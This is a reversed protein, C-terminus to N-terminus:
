VVVAEINLHVDCALGSRRPCDASPSGPCPPCTRVFSATLPRHPLKLRGRKPRFCRHSTKRGNPGERGSGHSRSLVSAVLDMRKPSSQSAFPGRHPNPCGGTFLPTGLGPRGATRPRRPRFAQGQLAPLASSALIPGTGRGPRIARIGARNGPAVPVNPLLVDRSAVLLGVRSIPTLAAQNTGDEKCSQARYAM